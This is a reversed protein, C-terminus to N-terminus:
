QGCALQLLQQKSPLSHSIVISCIQLSILWDVGTLLGVLGHIIPGDFHSTSYLKIVFSHPKFYTKSLNPSILNPRPTYQYHPCQHHTHVGSHVSSLLKHGLCIKVHFITCAFTFHFNHGSLWQFTFVYKIKPHPSPPFHQQIHVEFLAQSYICTRVSFLSKKVM